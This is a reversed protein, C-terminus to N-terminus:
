WRADKDVPNVFRTNDEDVVEYFWGEKVLSRRKRRKEKEGDADGNGGDTSTVSGGPAPSRTMTRAIAIAPSSRAKSPSKSNTPSKRLRKHLAPLLPGDGLDDYRLADHYKPTINRTERRPRTRVEEEEQDDEYVDEDNEDKVDEGEAESSSSQDHNVAAQPDKTHRAVLRARWGPPPGLRRMPGAYPKKSGLFRAGKKPTTPAPPDSPADVMEEGSDSDLSIAEEKGKGKDSKPSATSEGPPVTGGGGGKKWPLVIEGPLRPPAKGRTRRAQTKMRMAITPQVARRPRKSVVRRSRRAATSAERRPPRGAGRKGPEPSSAQESQSEAGSDSATEYEEDHASSNSDSSESSGIEVVEQEDENSEGRKPVRDLKRVENEATAARMERAPRGRGRKIPQADEDDEGDDERNSDAIEPTETAGKSWRGRIGHPPIRWPPKDVDMADDESGDDVRAEEEAQLQRAVLDEDELEEEDNDDDDDDDEEQQGSTTTTEKRILKPSPLLKGAGWRGARAKGPTEKRKIPLIVIRSRTEMVKDGKEKNQLEDEKAEAAKRAKAKGAKLAESVRRANEAKLALKARRTQQAKQAAEIRKRRLEEDGDGNAPSPDRTTSADGADTSERSAQSRYLGTAHITKSATSVAPKVHTVPVLDQQKKKREREALIAEKTALELAAASSQEGNTRRATVDQSSQSLTTGNVQAKSASKRSAASSKAATPTQVPTSRASGMRSFSERRVAAATEKDAIPRFAPSAQASPTSNNVQAESAMRRFAAPSKANKTPPLIAPPLIATASPKAATAPTATSEKRPRGPGRKASAVTPTYEQEMLPESPEDRRQATSAPTATSDKRPRGPARKASVVTPTDVKHKESPENRPKATSAPTATSEKRPRGPKRKASVAAPTIEQEGFPEDRRQTTSAPTATSDKRPRGPRKKVSVVATTSELEKLELEELEQEKLPEDQPQVASSPTASSIKRPRGPGRRAPLATPTDGRQGGAAEDRLSNRRVRERITDDHIRQMEHPLPDWAPGRRGRASRRLRSNAEERARERQAAPDVLIPEVFPTLLTDTGVRTYVLYRFYEAM